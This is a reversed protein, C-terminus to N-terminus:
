KASKNPITDAYPIGKVRSSIWDKLFIGWLLVPNEDSATLLEDLQRYVHRRNTDNTKKLLSLFKIELPTLNLQKSKRLTNQIFNKMQAYHGSEAQILIKIFECDKYYKPSYKKIDLSEFDYLSLMAERYHLNSFQFLTKFRLIDLVYGIYRSYNKDEVLDPINKELFKEGEAHRGSDWLLLVKKYIFFLFNELREKENKVPIKWADRLLTEVQRIRGTIHCMSILTRVANIYSDFRQPNRKKKLLHKELEFLQTATEYAKEYESHIQYYSVLAVLRRRNLGPTLGKTSNELVSFDINEENFAISPDDHVTALLSLHIKVHERFIQQRTQEKRLANDLDAMTKKLNPKMKKSTWSYKSLEYHRYLLMIELAYFEGQRASALAKETMQLAKNLLGKEELLYGYSIQAMLEMEEPPEPRSVLLSKLISEFLRQKLVPYIKYKKRLSEEEFAPQSNIDDFLSLFNNDESSHRRAFKKFYSKEEPTLSHILNFLDESGKIRAMFDTEGSAFKAFINYIFSNTAVPLIHCTILSFFRRSSPLIM